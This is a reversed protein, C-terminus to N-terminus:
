ITIVWVRYNPYSSHEWIQGSQKIGEHLNPEAEGQFDEIFARFVDQITWKESDYVDWWEWNGEGNIHEALYILHNEEESKEKFKPM